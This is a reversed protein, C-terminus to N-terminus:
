SPKIRRDPKGSRRDSTSSRRDVAPRADPTKRRDKSGASYFRRDGAGLRRDDLIEAPAVVHTSAVAQGNTVLHGNSNLSYGNASALGSSSVRGRSIDAHSSAAAYGNSHEAYTNSGNGNTITHGNGLEHHESANAHGNAHGPFGSAPPQAGNTLLKHLTPIHLRESEVFDVGQVTLSFSANDGIAILGKQKLYWTTFDLYDRPFGMRTELESLSIEPSAPHSRRRSYLVAMLALRRNSEGDIVDMFDISDSLPPQEVCRSPRSADYEARREPDSLVEYANKLVSFADANGSQPNDPHYRAGLYRYVRHITEPEANPSIQLFEYYDVQKM